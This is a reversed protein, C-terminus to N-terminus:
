GGFPFFAFYDKEEGAGRRSFIFPFLTFRSGEEKEDHRARYDLLQLGRWSTDESSHSTTLLPYLVETFREDEGGTAKYVLPRLAFEREVGKNEFKLLPGLLHLVRYDSAPSARYDFLPWLTRVSGEEAAQVPSSFAPLWLSCFLLLLPSLPTFFANGM